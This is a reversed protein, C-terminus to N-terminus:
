VSPRVLGQGRGDIRDLLDDVVQLTLGWLRVGDFDVRPMTFGVGSLPWTMPGRGHGALLPDLTAVHYAVVEDTTRPVPEHDLAFVFPRILMTRVPRTQLDDLTGLIEARGLDLGTEEWTERVATQLLDGDGPEERGGPFAVHGSWPDTARQARRIFWLKRGPSLIAAVAARRLSPDELRVAPRSLAQRVDSLEDM